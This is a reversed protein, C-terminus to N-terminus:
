RSTPRKTLVSEWTKEFEQSNFKVMQTEDLTWGIKVEGALPVNVPTGYVQEFEAPVLEFCKELEICINYCLKPDNDVDLEIDDHVTSTFLIKDQQFWDATRINRWALKRAITMFDAALGQVPYNLINARPWDWGGDWTQYQSFPYWRGSPNTLRGTEAVERISNLSHDHIGKYKEFFRTVVDEWYGMAGSVHNFDPDNAYAYAASRYGKPGFADIFIMRYLFNKAITRTPLKFFKQNDSHLDEGLQIERVAIPDQALYVKTRWELQSADAKLLM